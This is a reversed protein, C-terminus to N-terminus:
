RTSGALRFLRKAEWEGNRLYLYGIKAMDRPLLALGYGGTSIGQPDRRWNAITSGSRGSCSPRPM